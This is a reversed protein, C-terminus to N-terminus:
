NFEFLSHLYASDFPASSLPRVRNSLGWTNHSAPVEIAFRLQSLADRGRINRDVCFFFVVM